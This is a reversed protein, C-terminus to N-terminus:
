PLACACPRFLLPVRLIAWARGNMKKQLSFTAIFLFFSLYLYCKEIFSVLLCSKGVSFKQRSIIKEYRQLRIPNPGKLSLSVIRVLFFHQNVPIAPCNRLYKECPLSGDAPSVHNKERSQRGAPCPLTSGCSMTRDTRVRCFCYM